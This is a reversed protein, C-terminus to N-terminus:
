KFIEKLLETSKIFDDMLANAFRIMSGITMPLGSAAFCALTVLMAQWVQMQTDWGMAIGSGILTYAVGGIVMFAVYIDMKQKMWKSVVHNYGVSLIFLAAMTLGIRTFNLHMEQM